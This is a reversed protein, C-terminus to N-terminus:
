LQKIYKVDVYDTLWVGNKSLYFEIGDEYMQKSDIALLVVEGHREGVKIATKIDASLHVYQRSRKQIGLKLISEISKVATGDYLIDPPSVPEYHMDLNKISHGQNARIYIKGNEEKLDFRQKNNKAVISQIKEFNLNAYKKKKNIKEILEDVLVWGDESMNLNLNEPHHRLLMVIYKSIDYNNYM